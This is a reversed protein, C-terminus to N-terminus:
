LVLSHNTVHQRVLLERYGFQKPDAIPGRMGAEIKQRCAVMRLRPLGVFSM